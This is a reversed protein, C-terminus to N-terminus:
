DKPIPVNLYTNPVAGSIVANVVAVRRSSSLVEEQIPNVIRVSSSVNLWVCFNVQNIGAAEFSTEYTASITGTPILAVTYLPGKNALWNIGLLAGLPVSIDSKPTSELKECARASVRYCFENMLISNVSIGGETKVYLNDSTIGMEASVELVSERCVTNMLNTYKINARALAQPFGLSDITLFINVALVIFLTLVILFKWGWGIRRKRKRLGRKKKM